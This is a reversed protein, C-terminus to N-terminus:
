TQSIIPNGHGCRCFLSVAQFDIVEPPFLTLSFVIFAMHPGTQQQNEGKYGAFPLRKEESM